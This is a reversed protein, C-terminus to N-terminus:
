VAGFVIVYAAVRDPALSFGLAMVEFPVPVNVAVSSGVAFVNEQVSLKEPSVDFAVAAWIWPGASTFVAVPTMTFKAAGVPPVPLRVTPAGLPVAVPDM